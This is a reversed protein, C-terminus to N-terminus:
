RLGARTAVRDIAAIAVEPRAHHPMHGVGELETLRAGPVLAVMRQSHTNLPVATDATGHVAEVPIDLNRYRQSMAALHPKLGRVQRANLRISQPQLVLGVGIHEAYGRPVPDPAFTTAISRRAISENALATVAPVFTVGGLTSGALTYFPGLGGEWPMTAGALSVVGAVREPHELAWAMAVAGGFSHGVVVARDIGLRAAAANLVTAQEAPSEGRDHLPPTHGLAPRDFAVVRYRNDLREMLDFSFDRLNGSAGHLLIVTPAGEPGRVLAHVRTNGVEIFQGSPPYAAATFAIESPM